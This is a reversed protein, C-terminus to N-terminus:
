NAVILNYACFACTCYRFGYNRCELTGDECEYLDGAWLGYPVGGFPDVIICWVCKVTPFCGVNCCATCVLWCKPIREPKYEPIMLLNNICDCNTAYSSDVQNEVKIFETNAFGERLISARGSAFVLILGGAVAALAVAKMRRTM